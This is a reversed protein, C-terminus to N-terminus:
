LRLAADEPHGATARASACRAPEAEDHVDAYDAVQIGLGRMFDKEVLRDQAVAFAKAPPYVPAKKGAIELARAPVNEFECTVVDVKAAFDGLATEDEFSGVTSFASVDFAPADAEDSYIHTKLGLRAAALALMRGLQGGGLIGIISGPSLAEPM